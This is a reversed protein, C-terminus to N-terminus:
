HDIPFRFTKLEQNYLRDLCLHKLPECEVEQAGLALLQPHVYLNNYHALGNKTEFIGGYKIAKKNSLKIARM